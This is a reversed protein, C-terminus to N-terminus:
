LLSAISHVVTVCLKMLARCRHLVRCHGPLTAKTGGQKAKGQNACGYSACCGSEGRFIGGALLQWPAMVLERIRAIDDACGIRYNDFLPVGQEVDPSAVVGAVFLHTHGVGAHAKPCGVGTGFDRDRGLM